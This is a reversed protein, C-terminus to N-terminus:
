APPGSFRQPRQDVTPEFGVRQALTAVNGTYDGAAPAPAVTPRIPRGCHPCAPAESSVSQGCDPCMILAM